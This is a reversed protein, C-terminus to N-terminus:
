SKTLRLSKYDILKFGSSFLIQTQLWCDTLKELCKYVIQNALSKPTTLKLKLWNTTLWSSTVQFTLKFDDQLWRSTWKFTLKSTLNQLWDTQLWYDLKTLEFNLSKYAQFNNKSYSAWFVINESKKKQSHSTGFM